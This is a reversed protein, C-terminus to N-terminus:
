SEMIEQLWIDNQLSVEEDNECEWRIAMKVINLLHRNTLPIEGNKKVSCELVKQLFEMSENM